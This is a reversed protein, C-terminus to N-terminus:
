ASDKHKKCSHALPLPLSPQHPAAQSPLPKPRFLLGQLVTQAESLQRRHTCVSSELGRLTHSLLLADQRLAALRAVANVPMQGVLQQRQQVMHRPEWVQEPANGAAMSRELRRAEQVSRAMAARVRAREEEGERIRRELEAVHSQQRMVERRHAQVLRQREKDF